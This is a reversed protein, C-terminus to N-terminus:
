GVMMQVRMFREKGGVMGGTEEDELTRWEVEVNDMCFPWDEGEEQEEKRPAEAYIQVLNVKEGWGPFHDGVRWFFQKAHGGRLYYRFLTYSSIIEYYENLWRTGDDHISAADRLDVDLDLLTRLDGDDINQLFGDESRHDIVGLATVSLSTWAEINGCPKDAWGRLNM